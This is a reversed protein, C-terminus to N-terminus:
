ALHEFILYLVYYIISSIGVSILTYSTSIYTRSFPIFFDITIGSISLIIGGYLFFQKMKEKLLGEAICSSLLIM